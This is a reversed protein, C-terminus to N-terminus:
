LEGWTSITATPINITDGTQSSSVVSIGSSLWEFFLDFKLHNIKFARQRTSFKNLLKYNADKGVGIPFVVLKGASELKNCKTLASQIFSQNEDCTNGDSIIVLWPQYYPTGCKKYIDKREELLELAKNIAEGMNTQGEAKLQINEKETVLKFGSQVKVSGGFSIVCIEASYKSDDNDFIAKYFQMLAKNLDEIPAGQMTQATDLCIVVPIRPTPNDIVFDHLSLGLISNSKM